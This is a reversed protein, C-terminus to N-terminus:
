TVRRAALTAPPLAMCRAGATYPLTRTRLYRARPVPVTMDAGLHVGAARLADHQHQCRAAPRPRGRRVRSNGGRAREQGADGDGTRPRHEHAAGAVCPAAGAQARAERHRAQRRCLGPGGGACEEADRSRARPATGRRRHAGAGGDGFFRGFHSRQVERVLLQLQVSVSPVSADLEPFALQVSRLAAAFRQALAGRAARARGAGDHTIHHPSRSLASAAYIHRALAPAPRPLLAAYVEWAGEASALAPAGGAAAAAAARPLEVQARRGAAAATGAHAARRRPAPMGDDPTHQSTSGRGLWGVPPPLPPMLMRSAGRSPTAGSADAVAHGAAGAGEVAATGAAAPARGAPAVTAHLEAVAPGHRALLHVVLLGSRWHAPDYTPPDAAEELNGPLMLRSGSRGDRDLGSHLLAGGAFHDDRTVVPAGVRVTNIAVLAVLISALASVDNGWYVDSHGHRAQEVRILCDLMGGLGQALVFWLLRHTPAGGGEAGDAAEARGGGEGEGEEDEDGGSSPGDRDGGRLSTVAAALVHCPVGLFAASAPLADLAAADLGGEADHEDEDRSTGDGAGSRQPALTGRAGCASTATDETVAWLRELEQPTKARGVREAWGNLEQLVAAADGLVGGELLRDLGAAQAHAHGHRQVLTEAAALLRTVRLTVEKLLRAGRTPAAAADM